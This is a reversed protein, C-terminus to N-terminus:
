KDYKKSPIGRKAGLSVTESVLRDREKELEHIQKAYSNIIDKVLLDTLNEEEEGKSRGCRICNLLHPMFKHTCEEKQNHYRLHETLYEGKYNMGPILPQDGNCLVCMKKSVLM